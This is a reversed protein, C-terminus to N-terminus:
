SGHEVLEMVFAADKADEVVLIGRFENVGARRAAAGPAPTVPIKASFNATLLQQIQSVAM